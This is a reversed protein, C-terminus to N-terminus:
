WAGKAAKSLLQRKLLHSDNCRLHQECVIEVECRFEIPSFKLVPNLVHPCRDEVVREGDDGVTAVSDPGAHPYSAFYM